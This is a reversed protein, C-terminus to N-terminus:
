KKNYAEIAKIFKKKEVLKLLEPDDQMIARLTEAKLPVIPGDGNKMAIVYDLTEEALFSYLSIRGRRVMFLWCSDAPIGNFTRGEVTTRSISKTDSPRIEKKVKNIKVKLFDDGEGINIRTRTTFSSDNVLEIKFKYTASMNKAAGYNYNYRPTQVYYTYPVNGGPTRITSTVPVSFQAYGNLSISLLSLIFCIKIKMPKVQNLINM